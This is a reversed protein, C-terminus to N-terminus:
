DYMWGYYASPDNTEVYTVTYSVGVDFPLNNALVLAGVGNSYPSTSGNSFIFICICFSGDLDANSFPAAPPYDFQVYQDLTSFSFKAVTSQNPILPYPQLYGDVDYYPYGVQVCVTGSGNYNPVHYSNTGDFLEQGEFVGVIPLLGLSDLVGNDARFLVPKSNLRRFSGTSPITRNAGVDPADANGVSLAIQSGGNDTSDIINVNNGVPTGLVNLQGNVTLHASVPSTYTNAGITTDNLYTTGNVFIDDDAYLNFFGGTSHNNSGNFLMLGNGSDAGSAPYIVNNIVQMTPLNAISVGKSVVFGSTVSINASPSAIAVNTGNDYIHSDTLVTTDGGGPRVWKPITNDHGTGDVSGGGGVFPLGNLFYGSDTNIAGTSDLCFQPTNTGIGLRSTDKDWHLKAAINLQNIDTIDGM